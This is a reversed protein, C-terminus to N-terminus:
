GHVACADIGDDPRQAPDVELAREEALGDGDAEAEGLGVDLRELQEDVAPGRRGALQGVQHAQRGARDGADDVPELLGAVDAPDGIRGIPPSDDDLDNGLLDRIDLGRHGADALLARDLDAVEALALEGDDIVEQRAHCVDGAVLRRGESVRRSGDAPAEDFAAGIPPSSRARSRKRDPTM